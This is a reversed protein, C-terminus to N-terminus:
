SQKLQAEIGQMLRNLDNKFDPDPRVPQANRYALPRLSEPLQQEEPVPAGQVLVPIVPIDRELASEVEIRLFDRPDDIRRKGTAPDVAFWDRGIVALLVDCRGVAERLHKRFDQGLPISDVDKFVADRGFREMLRESIRDTVYASDERRYSLFVRSTAPTVSRERRPEPQPPPPPPAVQEAARGESEAIPAHRAPFARLVAAMAVPYAAAVITPWPMAYMWEARPVLLLWAVAPPAVLWRPDFPASDRSLPTKLTPISLWIVGGIAAGLYFHQFEGYQFNDFVTPGLVRVLGLGALGALPTGLAALHFRTRSSLRRLLLFPLLFVV